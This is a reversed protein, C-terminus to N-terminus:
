RDPNPEEEWDLSPVKFSVKATVQWGEPAEVIEGVMATRELGEADVTFRVERVIHGHAAFSTQARLARLVGEVTADPAYLWTESFAGPWLDAAAHFDSSAVAAGIDFGEALLTDWADGVRAAM